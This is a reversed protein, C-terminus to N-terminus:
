HVILRVFLDRARGAAAARCVGEDYTEMNMFVFDTGDMYTHQMETKELVADKLQEGAKFTKEVTNGTKMNKLKSRVFASGKGPKVHLFEQVRYVVGDIEITSGTKFDNSSIARTVRSACAPASRRAVRAGLFGSKCSV